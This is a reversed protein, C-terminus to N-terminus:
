DTAESINLNRPNSKPYNWISKGCLCELHTYFCENSILVHYTHEGKHKIKNFKISM